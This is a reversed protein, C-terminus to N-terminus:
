CFTRESAVAAAARPDRDVAVAKKLGHALHAGRMFCPEGRVVSDISQLAPV